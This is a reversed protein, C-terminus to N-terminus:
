KLQCRRMAIHFNRRLEASSVSEGELNINLAHYVEKGSIVTQVMISQHPRLSCLTKLSIQRDRFLQEGGEPVKM